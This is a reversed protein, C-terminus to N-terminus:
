AEEEKVESIGLIGRNVLTPYHKHNWKQDLIHSALLFWIFLLLPVCLVLVVRGIIHVYFNPILLILFPIALLVLYKITYVISSIFLFLSLRFQSSFRNTYIAIVVLM